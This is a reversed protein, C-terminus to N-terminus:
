VKAYIEPGAKSFERPKVEMETQLAEEDAM